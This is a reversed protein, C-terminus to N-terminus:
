ITCCNLGNSIWENNSCEKERELISFNSKSLEKQSRSYLFGKLEAKWQIAVIRNCILNFKGSSILHITSLGKAGIRSVHQVVSPSWDTFLLMGFTEASAPKKLRFFAVTAKCGSTTICTRTYKALNARFFLHAFDGVKIYTPHLRRM